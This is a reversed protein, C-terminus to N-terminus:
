LGSKKPIINMSYYDAAVILMLTIWKIECNFALFSIQQLLEHKSASFKMKFGDDLLKAMQWHHLNM